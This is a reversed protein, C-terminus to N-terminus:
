YHLFVEHIKWYLLMTLTYCAHLIKTRHKCAVSKHFLKWTLVKWRSVFMIFGTTMSCKNRATTFASCQVCFLPFQQQHLVLKASIADSRTKLANFMGRQNPPVLEAFALWDIAKLAVRRGAM